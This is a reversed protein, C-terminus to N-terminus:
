ASRSLNVRAFSKCMSDDNQRFLDRLATLEHTEHGIVAVIAEDSRLVYRRIHVPVKERSNLFEKWPVLATESRDGIGYSAHAGRPVTGRCVNFEIWEPFNVGFRGAIKLAEEM